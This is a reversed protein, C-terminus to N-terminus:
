QPLEIDTLDNPWHPLAAEVRSKKRRPDQMDNRPTVRAPDLREIEPDVFIPESNESSACILALEDNLTLLKELNPDALETNSKTTQPEAILKLFM